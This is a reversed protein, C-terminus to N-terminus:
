VYAIPASAVQAYTNTINGGDMDRLFAGSLPTPPIYIKARYQLDEYKENFCPVNSAMYTM